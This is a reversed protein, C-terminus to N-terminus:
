FVKRAFLSRQLATLVCLGSFLWALAAFWEPLATVVLLFLITETGEILGTSYFFAKRGHADTEIGRKAAIAAFALFSAGTLCFSALLAAAALANSDPDAVAFGLPVSAYFVYDAVIDFYGGRDTPGTLRAVAGDLGDTIRNLVILGFALKFLSLAVAVAALIGILMGALTVANASVGRDALLRGAANLPPDIVPRMVTDLM